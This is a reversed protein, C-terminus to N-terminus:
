AALADARGLAYFAAQPDFAETVSDGKASLTANSAYSTGIGQAEGIVGGTVTWYDGWYRRYPERWYRDIFIPYTTPAADAILAVKEKIRSFQAATPAGELGETYGDFWAKFETLTM